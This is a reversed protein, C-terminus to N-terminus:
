EDCNRSINGLKQVKKFRKKREAGRRNNKKMQKIQRRGSRQTQTENTDAKNRIPAAYYLYPLVTIYKQFIYLFPSV